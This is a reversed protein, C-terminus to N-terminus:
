VLAAKPDDLWDVAADLSNLPGLAKVQLQGQLGGRDFLALCPQDLFRSAYKIAEFACKFRCPLSQRAAADWGAACRPRFSLSM